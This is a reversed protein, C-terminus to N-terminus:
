VREAAGQGRGFRSANAEGKSVPGALALDDLSFARPAYGFDATAEAHDFCMDVGMRTAMEPSIGAFGPVRRALRIATRFLWLPTRPVRAPRGLRQFVAEVMEGYSVTSGGSLDYAKDFTRENELADVCAQALDAAHVPQRLGRGEAFLPFFGFRRVWNAIFTINGDRGCGYILTPRFLTWRIGYPQCLSALQDEAAIIESISQREDPDASARKYFGSTTGFAILRWVGLRHLDALVPLVSPLPGLYIAAGSNQGLLALLKMPTYTLWRLRPHDGEGCTVQKRTLAFVKFGREVLQPVLFYGVQGTAGFVFASTVRMVHRPERCTDAPGLLSM